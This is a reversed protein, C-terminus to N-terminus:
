RFERVQQVSLSSPITALEVDGESTHQIHNQIKSRSDAYPTGSSDEGELRRFSKREDDRRNKSTSIRSGLLKFTSSLTTFTKTRRLPMLTPLCAAIVSANPEILAWIAFSRTYGQAVHMLRQSQLLFKKEFRDFSPISILSSASPESVIHM